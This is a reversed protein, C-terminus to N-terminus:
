KNVDYLIKEKEMQLLKKIEEEIKDIKENDKEYKALVLLENLKILREKNSEKQKSKKNNKIFGKNSKSQIEEFKKNKDKLIQNELIKITQKKFVRYCNECGFVGTKLFERYSMQCVDCRLEEKNEQKEFCEECIHIMNKYGNSEEIYSTVADRIGCIECKM